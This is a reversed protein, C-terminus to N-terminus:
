EKSESDWDPRALGTLRPTLWLGSGSLGADRTLAPEGGVTEVAAVALGEIRLPWLRGAHRPGFASVLARGFYGTTRGILHGGDTLRLSFSPADSRAHPELWATVGTGRLDSRRLLKQVEVASGSKDVVPEIAVVDHAGVEIARYYRRKGNFATVAWREGIRSMTDAMKPLRIAFVDDRARSLAVYTVRMEADPDEGPFKGHKAVPILVRDFELGKARHVTSVVVDADDTAGLGAPTSRDRLADRLAAMNLHGRDKGRREAEKLSIWAELPDLNLAAVSVLDIVQQREVVPTDVGGLAAGIWWAAGLEDLPRRLVHRVGSERLVRSVVLADGNTRCLLATTAPSRDVLNTADELPGLDSLDEVFEAVRTRSQAPDQSARVDRGLQVVDMPVPGRARYDVDLSTRRAGLDSELRTLLQQSTTTATSDELQWDYIAQLSDCMATFGCDPDVAALVALAFEARDGVLDQVEDLLVHRLAELRQTTDEHLKATAARVRKGFGNITSLDEGMEILLQSAFSDFTSISVAGTGRQEVRRRAAAVAARSFTLVLVEELPSLGEGVLQDIRAAIAETKGQGAGAVVLLREEPRAEAVARQSSDLPQTM